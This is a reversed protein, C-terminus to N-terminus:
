RRSPTMPPPPTSMLNAVLDGPIYRSSNSAKSIDHARPSWTTAGVAGDGDAGALAIFDADAAGIIFHGHWGAVHLNHLLTAAEIETSWCIVTDSHAAMVQDAQMAFDLAGPEILVQSTVPINLSSLTHTIVDMGSHGYDNDSAALTIGHTAIHKRSM